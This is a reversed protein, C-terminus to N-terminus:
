VGFDFVDGLADLDNDGVNGGALLLTFFGLIQTKVVGHCPKVVTTEEFLLKASKIHPAIIRQAQDAAIDVPELQDVVEEAMRHAVTQDRGNGVGEFCAAPGVVNQRANPSVFEGDDQRAGGRLVGSLHHTTEFRPQWLFADKAGLNRNGQSIGYFGVSLLRDFVHQAAGVLHHILFFEQLAHDHLLIGDHAKELRGLLFPQKRLEGM